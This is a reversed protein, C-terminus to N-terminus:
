VCILLEPRRSALVPLLPSVLKNARRRAIVLIIAVIIRVQDGRCHKDVRACDSSALNGFIIAVPILM